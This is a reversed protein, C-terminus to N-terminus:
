FREEETEELTASWKRWWIIGGIVLVITAGGLILWLGVPMEEEEVNEKEVSREQKMVKGVATYQPIISFKIIRESTNGAVDEANVIVEYNGPEHMTYEYNNKGPTIPQKKGNIKIQTIRDEGKAVGLQFTLYEEYEQEDEAGRFYIDPPSNDIVFSAKATAGNGAEDKVKVELLYRGEACVKEGPYYLKGNLYMEYTYTTFDWIFEQPKRNWVFSKMQKQHLHDVYRIVPDTKDIIIQMNEEAQNGAQDIANLTIRYVGDETLLQESKWDQVEIASVESNEDTREIVALVTQLINEDEAFCSFRVDESTIMYKQIGRIEVVPNKKDIFIRKETQSQNGACDTAIITVAVGEGQVSEKSVTITGSVDKIETYKGNVYCAIKEVQSVTDSADVHIVVNENHWVDLDKEGKIKIEPATSDICLEKEVVFKELVDGNEDETWVSLFNGGERMEKIEAEEDCVTLQGEALVEEGASLKYKTIMGERKHVIKIQPCKLYYGQNGDPESILLEYPSEEIEEAFGTMVQQVCLM